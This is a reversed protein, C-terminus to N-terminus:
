CIIKLRYDEFYIEDVELNNMITEYSINVLEEFDNVEWIKRIIHM